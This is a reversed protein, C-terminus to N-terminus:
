AFRAYIGIQHEADVDIKLYNGSIKVGGRSDPTESADDAITAPKNFLTIQGSGRVTSNTNVPTGASIYIDDATRIGIGGTKSNVTKVGLILARGETIYGM